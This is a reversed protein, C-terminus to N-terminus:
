DTQNLIADLRRQWGEPAAWRQKPRRELPFGREQMWYVRGWVTSTPMGMVGAIASAPAGTGWMHYIRRDRHSLDDVSWHRGRSRWRHLRAVEADVAKEVLKRLGPPLPDAM